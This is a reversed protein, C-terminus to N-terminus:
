ARRSHILHQVRMSMLLAEMQRLGDEAEATDADDAILFAIHLMQEVRREEAERILSDLGALQNLASEAM